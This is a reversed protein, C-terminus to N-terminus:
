KKRRNIRKQTDLLMGTGLDLATLNAAMGLGKGLGGIASSTSANPSVSALVGLGVGTAGITFARKQFKKLEKM